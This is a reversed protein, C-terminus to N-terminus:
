KKKPKRNLKLVIQRQDAMNQFLKVALAAKEKVTAQPDTEMALRKMVDRIDPLELLTVAQCFCTKRRGDNYGELLTRLIAAKEELEARYADLGIRQAKDFDSFMNKHTMFSDYDMIGDYRECPYEGCQWCYEVAGHQLSCKVIACSRHGEGGGCGPCGNDMHHIPCLGCNLGCLSFLPYERKYNKM